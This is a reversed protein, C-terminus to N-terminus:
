SVEARMSRGLEARRIEQKWEETPELDEEDCDLSELLKEAFLARTSQPLALTQALLEEASM